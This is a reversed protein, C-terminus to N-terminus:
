PKKGREGREAGDGREGRERGPGGPVPIRADPMVALLANMVPDKLAPDLSVPGAERTIAEAAAELDPGQAGLALMCHGLFFRSRAHVIRAKARNERMLADAERFATAAPGFEGKEYALIGLTYLANYSRGEGQSNENTLLVEAEAAGPRDKTPLLDLTGRVGLTALALDGVLVSRYPDDKPLHELARRYCAVAEPWRQGLQHLRGLKRDVKAGARADLGAELVFRSARDLHALANVDGDGEEGDRDARRLAEELLFEADRKSGEDNVAALHRKYLSFVQEAEGERLLMRGVARLAVRGAPTPITAEFDPLAMLERVRDRGSRRGASDLRGLMQWQKGEADTPEPLVAAAEGLVERAVGVHFWSAGRGPALALLDRVADLARAKDAGEKGADLVCHSVLRDIENKWPM